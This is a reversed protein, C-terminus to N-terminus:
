ANEEEGKGVITLGLGLKSFYDSHFNLWFNELNEEKIWFTTGAPLAYRMPRPENKKYDWGGIRLPKPIYASVVRRNPISSPLWGVEPIAPEPIAPTLFIIKGIGKGGVDMIEEKIDEFLSKFDEKILEYRVARREGGLILTRPEKELIEFLLEEEEVEVYFSFRVGKKLRLFRVRFLADEKSVTLKDPNIKISTREEELVLDEKKSLRNACVPKGILYNKFDDLSIFGSEEEEEKLWLVKQLGELDWNRPKIFDGRELSCKLTFLPAYFLLVGDKELFPGYFKLPPEEP